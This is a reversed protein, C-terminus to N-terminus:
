RIRTEVLPGASGVSGEEPCGSDVTSQDGQVLISISQEAFFRGEFVLFPKTPPVPMPFPLRVARLDTHCLTVSTM